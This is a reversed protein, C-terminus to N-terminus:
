SVSHFIFLDTLGIIVNYSVHLLDKPYFELLALITQTKTVKSLM